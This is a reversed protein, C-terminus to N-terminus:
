MRMTSALPKLGRLEVVYFQACGKSEEPYVGRAAIKRPVHSTSRAASKVDKVDRRAIVHRPWHCSHVSLGLKSLIFPQPKKSASQVLRSM